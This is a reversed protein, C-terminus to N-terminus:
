GLSQMREDLKGLAQEQVINDKHSRIINRIIESVSMGEREALDNLEDYLEDELRVTVKAM